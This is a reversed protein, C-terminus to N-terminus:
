RLWPLGHWRHCISRPVARRRKHQRPPPEIAEPPAPGGYPGDSQHAGERIAWGFNLAETTGAPIVDIEEWSADGVDGIWLDGTVSDFNAKYPNRLGYAYIEDLGDKGVLPNDAPITYNKNPDDPFDDGHPDIRLIKGQLQNLSQARIEIMGDGSTVYLMGDPGFQLWGGYHNMNGKIDLVMVTQGNAVDVETATAPDGVATYRKVVGANDGTRTYFAYMYGNNLYDPDFVTSLLGQEGSASNLDSPRSMFSTTSYAGTNVDMVKVRGQRTENIFIRSDDGPMFAM